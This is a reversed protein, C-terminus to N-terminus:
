DVYLIQLYFDNTMSNQALPNQAISNVGKSMSMEGKEEPACPLIKLLSDMVILGTRTIIKEAWIDNM